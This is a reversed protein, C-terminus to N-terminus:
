GLYRIGVRPASSDVRRNTGRFESPCSNDWVEQTEESPRSIRTRTRNSATSDSSQEKSSSRGSRSSTSSSRSSESRPAAEKLQLVSSAEKEDSSRTGLLNGDQNLINGTQNLINDGLTLSEADTRTKKSAHLEPSDEQTRAPLARKSKVDMIDELQSLRLQLQEIRQEAERLEEDRRQRKQKEAAYREGM